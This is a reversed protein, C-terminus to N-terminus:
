KKLAAFRKALEDVDPIKGGVSGKGVNMDSKPETATSRKPTSLTQKKVGDMKPGPKLEPPAPLRVKPSVNDTSPNPPAVSVPSKPGFDRPPTARTLEETSLPGELAKVAQGGSPNDDGEEEEDDYEPPDEKQSKPWDVGYTRAIEKLYETVLKPPPPEVRLKTLVREAVKGDSNELAELAFEKGYKEVLLQRAQQLEKIDTRPAAYIISKVAEELGPDCEKAEM